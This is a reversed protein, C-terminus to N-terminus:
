IMRSMFALNKRTKCFDDYRNESLIYLIEIEPKTIVDKPGCLLDKHVPDIKFCCDKKDKIRYVRIKEIGDKRMSFNLKYKISKYDLGKIGTNYLMQDKNFHLLNNNILIDCIAKEASGEYLLLYKISNM